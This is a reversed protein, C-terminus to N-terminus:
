AEQFWSKIDWFSLSHSPAGKKIKKIKTNSSKGSSVKAFASPQLQLHHGLGLDTIMPYGKDGVM